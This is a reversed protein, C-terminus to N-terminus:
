PATIRGHFSHRFARRFNTVRKSLKEVVREAYKAGGKGRQIKEVIERGILWYALVM